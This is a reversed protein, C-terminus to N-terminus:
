TDYLTEIDGPRDCALRKGPTCTQDHLQVLLTELQVRKKAELVSFIQVYFQELAEKAAIAVKLGKVTLTVLRHRREAPDIHTSVLGKQKLLSVQRSVSAETQGLRNALARQKSQPWKELNSLIVFQSMGVGLREQLVQDAQRHSISAVHTFIEGIAGSSQM